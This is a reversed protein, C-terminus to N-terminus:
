PCPRFQRHCWVGEGVEWCLRPELLLLAPAPLWTQACPPHLVLCLTPASSGGGAREASSGGAQGSRQRGVQMGAESVVRRGAGNVVQRGPEASSGGAREM